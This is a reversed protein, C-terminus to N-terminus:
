RHFDSFGKAESSCFPYSVAGDFESKEDLQRNGKSLKKGKIVVHLWTLKMRAFTPSQHFWRHRHTSSSDWAVPLMRPLVLSIWWVILEQTFLLFLIIMKLSSNNGYGVALEIVEFVRCLEEGLKERGSWGEGLLSIRCWAMKNLEFCERINAISLEFCFYAKAPWWRASM